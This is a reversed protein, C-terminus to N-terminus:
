RDKWWLWLIGILLALSILSQLAIAAHEISPNSSM